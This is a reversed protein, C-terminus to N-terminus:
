AGFLGVLAGAAASGFIIAMVSVKRSLFAALAATAVVCATPSIVIGDVTRCWLSMGAFSLCAVVMLAVTAPRVGRVMGLVFRNSKWRELGTLAATLLLFSPFFLGATAVFAGFSGAIRYGFFTAANVAVPGPTTQTLAILNGFEDMPIHLTPATPGVFEDIYAPILVFGGGFSMLGFKVFVWFLRGYRLTVVALAAAVVAAVAIRTGRGPAPVSVGALDAAGADGFGAYELAVGAALAAVLVGLPGAGHLLLAAVGLAVAAYGYVGRVNRRWSAAITGAIIGVLSCRLGLFAAAVVPHNVPIVGYGRSVLSFIAISPIAVATQAVLAGVYGALKFGTYVAANGAIIGPVMQFVPLHDLLEGEGLWRRRRGFVGDAVAIIAYGGGVVFLSIRFFEWFLALLFRTRSLGDPYSTHASLNAM